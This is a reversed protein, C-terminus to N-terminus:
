DSYYVKVNKHNQLISAPIDETINGYMAQELIDKKHKGNAMLVIKKSSMIPKLGMTVAQTPVEDITPFFRSNDKITEENLDVMRTESDFSSGPENFAIHGNGGIGLLCLDVGVGYNMDPWVATDGPFYINDDDMNTHKFLNEEMFYRYSQDQITNDVYEDLNYTTTTSWDLQRSVLEKYLSLPTSGTPLILKPEPLTLTHEVIDAVYSGLEWYNNIKKLKSM